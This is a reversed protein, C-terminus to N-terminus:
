DWFGGARRTRRLQIKNFDEIPSISNISMTSFENDVNNEKQEILSLRRKIENKRINIRDSYRELERRRSLSQLGQHLVRQSMKPVRRSNLNNLKCILENKDM